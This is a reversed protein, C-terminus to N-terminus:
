AGRDIMLWVIPGEDGDPQRWRLAHGTAAVASVSASAPQAPPPLRVGPAVGGALRAALVVAVPAACAAEVV